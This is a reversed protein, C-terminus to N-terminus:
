FLFREVRFEFIYDPEILDIIDNNYLMKCLYVEDFMSIYIPLMSLLFSDYFIVVKNAFNSDNKNNKYLISSSIIDWDVIKGVHNHTDDILTNYKKVNDLVSEVTYKFLKLGNKSSVDEESICYKTYIGEFDTTYFYDDDINDLVQDGLNIEATLDGIGVGMDMLIVNQLRQIDIIEPTVTLSRRSGVPVVSNLREGFSAIVADGARELGFLENIKNVFQMYVLYSGYLNIHTDTKYYVPLEDINHKSLIEYGDLM